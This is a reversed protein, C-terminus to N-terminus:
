ARLGSYPGEDDPVGEPSKPEADVQQSFASDYEHHLEGDRVRATQEHAHLEVVVPLLRGGIERM